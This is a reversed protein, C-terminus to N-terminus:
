LTKVDANETESNEPLLLFSRHTRGTHHSLRLGRLARGFSDAMM